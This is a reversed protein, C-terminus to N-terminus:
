TPRAAKHGTLAAFISAATRWLWFLVEYKWRVLRSGKPNFHKLYFQKTGAFLAKSMVKYNKSSSCGKLHIVSYRGDYVVKFGKQSCRLCLDLDDGYM